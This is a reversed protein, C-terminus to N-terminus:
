YRKCNKSIPEVLDSDNSLVAAVEYSKQFGDLLLYTAINVDSGKEETKWVYVVNPWPRFPMQNDIIRELKPEVLGAYKPKELFTGYHIHVEPAVAAILIGVPEM